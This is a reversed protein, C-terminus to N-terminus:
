KAEAGLSTPTDLKANRRVTAAKEKQSMAKIEKLTTPNLPTPM